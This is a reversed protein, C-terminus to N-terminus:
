LKSFLVLGNWPIGIIYHDTHTMHLLTFSCNCRCHQPQGTVSKARHQSPQVADRIQDPNLKSLLKSPFDLVAVKVM